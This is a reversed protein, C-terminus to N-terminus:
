IKPLQRLFHTPCEYGTPNKELYQQHYDEGDIWVAIEEIETVLSDNPYWTKQAAEKAAEAVLLEEKNHVLIASRYQTGKDPGQSNVTTPDHIRFFIDLIEKPTLSSPEYAIQVSEAFNTAGTCVKKYDVPLTNPDGNAYGVRVDVLGRHGFQKRVVKEMGWFCGGAVTIFQSTATTKITPSIKSVSVTM